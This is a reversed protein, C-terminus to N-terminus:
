DLSLSRFQYNISIKVLGMSPLCLMGWMCKTYRTLPRRIRILSMYIQTVGQTWCIKGVIKVCVQKQTTLSKEQGEMISDRMRTAKFYPTWRLNEFKSNSASIKDISVMKGLQIFGVNWKQFYVNKRNLDTPATKSTAQLVYYTFNLPSKSFTASCTLRLQM